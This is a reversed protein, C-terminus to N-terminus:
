RPTPSTRTTIQTWNQGDWAWTDNAAGAATRGGFLLIRKSNSDYCMAHDDRATPSTPPTILTWNGSIFEWTDNRLGVKDRGGFIM